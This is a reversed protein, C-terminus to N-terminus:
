GTKSYTKKKVKLEGGESSYLFTTANANQIDMLAFSPIVDCDFASHAGTISGPNLFLRGDFEHYKQSHTHGSIMIDVDLRRQWIALSEKDGWPVVQHGHLMGIKLDGATTVAFDPLGDGLEDLDGKTVIVNQSLTRFYALMEPSTVNGTILVMHLRGPIFMKKFLEPIEAARYPVHLDGVVLVLM